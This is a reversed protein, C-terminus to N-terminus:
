CSRRVVSVTPPASIRIVLQVRRSTSHDVEIWFGEDSIQRFLESAEAYTHTSLCVRQGPKRNITLGM